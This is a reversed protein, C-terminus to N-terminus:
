SYLSSRLKNLIRKHILPLFCLSTSGFQLHTFLVEFLFSSWSLRCNKRNNWICVVLFARSSAMKPQWPFEWFVELATKSSPVVFDEATAVSVCLHGLSCDSYKECRYSLICALTSTLNFQFFLDWKLM